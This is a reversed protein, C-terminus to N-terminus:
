HEGEWVLVSQGRWLIRVDEVPVKHVPALLTQLHQQQEEATQQHEGAAHKQVAAVVLVGHHIGPSHRRLRGNLNAFCVRLKYNFEYCGTERYIALRGSKLYPKM